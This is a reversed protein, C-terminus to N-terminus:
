APGRSRPCARAGLLEDLGDAGARRRAPTSTRALRGSPPTTVCPWRRCTGSARPTAPSVMPRPLRTMAVSPSTWRSMRSTPLDNPPVRASSSTEIASGVGAGNVGEDALVPGALGREALDDGPDERGILALEDQAALRDREPRRALRQSRPCRARRGPPPPRGAASRRRSRTGPRPAAGARSRAAACAARATRAGRPRCRSRRDRRVGDDPRQRQRLLLLDLDQPRQGAVGLQDDEVLRRGRERRGLDLPEVLDDAAERRPPRVTMRTEWKRPSTSASASVMVTRRSPATTCVLAPRRRSRPCAPRRSARGIPRGSRGASAARRRRRGARRQGHAVERGGADVARRELDPRALDDARAPRTPAPRESSARAIKPADGTSRRALHGGPGGAEGARREPESRAFTAIIGSDRLSSPRISRRGTRSFTLRALRRDSPRNPKTRRRM